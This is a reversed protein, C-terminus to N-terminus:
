TLPVTSTITVAEVVQGVDLTFDQRAQENVQLIIGNETVSKFGEKSLRVQYEGPPLLPVVFFGADNTVANRISHTDVKTVAVSVGPVLGGSADRVTGGFEAATQPWLTSSSFILGFALMAISAHRSMHRLRIRNPGIQTNIQPFCKTGATCCSVSGLQRRAPVM